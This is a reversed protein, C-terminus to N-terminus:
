KSGSEWHRNKRVWDRPAHYFFSFMERKNMGREAEISPHYCESSAPDAQNREFIAAEVEKLSPIIFSIRTNPGSYYHEGGDGILCDKFVNEKCHKAGDSM